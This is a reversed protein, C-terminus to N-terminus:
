SPGVGGGGEGWGSGVHAINDERSSANGGGGGSGDGGGVEGAMGQLATKVPVQMVGEEEAIAGGGGEGM